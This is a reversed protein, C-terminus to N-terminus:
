PTLALIPALVAPSRSVPTAAAVSGETRPSISTESQQAKALAFALRRVAELANLSGSGVNMQNVTVSSAPPTPPEQYAGLIRALKDLAALKDHTEIKLAGSKTTVSRVQAAQEAGLLRSPTAIVEDRWGLVVGETDLVPVREWQVIDRPDSFAIRELERILRSKLDAIKKEKPHRARTDAEIRQELLWNVRAEIFPKHRLQWPLRPSKGEFGAIEYAPGLRHGQAIAWCFREHRVNALPKSPDFQPKATLVEGM